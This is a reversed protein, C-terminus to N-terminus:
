KESVPKLSVQQPSALYLILDRVEVDSYNRLM